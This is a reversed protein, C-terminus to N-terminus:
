DLNLRFRGWIQVLESKRGEHLLRGQMNIQFNLKRQMSCTLRGPSLRSPTPRFFIRKNKEEAEREERRRREKQSRWEAGQRREKNKKNRRARRTLPAEEVKTRASEKVEQVRQVKPGRCGQGDKMRVKSGQVRSSQARSGKLGRFKPVESDQVRRSKFKQVEEKQHSFLAHQLRGLFSTPELLARSLVHWPM